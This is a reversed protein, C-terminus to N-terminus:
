PRNDRHDGFSITRQKVENRSEIDNEPQEYEMIVPKKLSYQGSTINPNRKKTHIKAPLEVKVDKPDVLGDQTTSAHVSKELVFLNSSAIMDHKDEKTM